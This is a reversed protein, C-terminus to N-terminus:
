FATIHEGGHVPIQNETDHQHEIEMDTFKSIDIYSRATKRSVVRQQVALYMDFASYTKAQCNNICAKESESEALRLETGVCYKHCENFLLHPLAYSM